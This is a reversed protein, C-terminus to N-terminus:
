QLCLSVTQLLRDVTVPKRLFAQAQVQRAAAELDGQSSLFIVPIDKFSPDSRLAGVFEVGSLYPVHIDAIILDPPQQLILKGAVVADEAPLVAYGANSLHLTLIERFSASNELVLVRQSATTTATVGAVM